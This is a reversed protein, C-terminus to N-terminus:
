TTKVRSIVAAAEGSKPTSGSAQKPVTFFFSCGKGSASEIWIRGGHLHIIERVISLGLGAGGYRRTASSDVQYFKEFVKEQETSPIGIGHDRCAFLFDEENERCTIDIESGEPSFKIANSVLNTFVQRFKQPDFNVPSLESCGTMRVHIQKRQLEERFQELVDELAPEVSIMERHIVMARADLRSLDILEDIMRALQQGRRKSIEVAEKLHRPDNQYREDLILSLFGNIVSLPTKLEHSVISLFNSKAQNAKLLDVNAAELRKKSEELASTTERLQSVMQQLESTRESIRQELNENLDTLENNARELQAAKDSIEEDRDQLHQAMLNFRSALRGFEDKRTAEPLRLSFDDRSISETGRLLSSMMRDVVVITYILIALAIVVLGGMTGRIAYATEDVLAVNSELLDNVMLGASHNITRIASMIEEGLANANGHHVIQAKEDSTTILISIHEEYRDLRSLILNVKEELDGIKAYVDVHCTNCYDPNVNARYHRPISKLTSSLENINNVLMDIDRSYGAKHQYLLSQATQIRELATHHEHFVTDKFTFMEQNRRFESLDGVIFTSGILSVVALVIVALLLRARLSM